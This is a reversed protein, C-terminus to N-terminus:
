TSIEPSFPRCLSHPRDPASLRHELEAIHQGLQADRDAMRSLSEAKLMLEIDARADFIRREIDDVDRRPAGQSDAAGLQQRTGGDSEKPTM